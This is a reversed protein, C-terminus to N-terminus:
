YRAVFWCVEDVGGVAGDSIDFGVGANLTVFLPNVATLNTVLVVSTATIAPDVVSLSGAVLADRGAQTASVFDLHVNMEASADTIPPGGSSRITMIDLSAGGGAGDIASMITEGQISNFALGTTGGNSLFQVAGGDVNFTSQVVRVQSGTIPPGGSGDVLLVERTAGAGSSDVLSVSYGSASATEVARVPGSGVLTQQRTVLADSKLTDVAGALLSSSSM